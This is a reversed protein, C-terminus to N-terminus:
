VEQVAWTPGAAAYCPDPPFFGLTNYGWFNTRGSEVLFRDNIHYHIPMSEVATVGPQWPNGPILQWKDLWARLRGECAPLGVASSHSLFVHFPMLRMVESAVITAYAM